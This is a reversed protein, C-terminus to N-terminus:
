LKLVIWDQLLGPNKKQLAGLMGGVLGQLQGGDRWLKAGAYAQVFGEPGSVVFVNKGPAAAGSACACDDQKFLGRKGANPAGDVIGVHATQSHFKCGEVAHTLPPSPNGLGRLGLQTLAAALDSDRVATGEQDVVVRIDLRDGFKDKLALLERTVPSPDMTELTLAEARISSSSGSVSGGASHNFFYNWSWWSAIGSTPADGCGQQIEDRSRVAWFITMSPASPLPLVAHAAQLASAIGTGGALFVVRDGRGGLRSRLDFEGHPGRLEVTDGVGGDAALPSLRSLYTSVEGGRVARVYLRLTDEDAGGPPPPLPTYERAVQIQPQKVEVCWLDFVHWLSAVGPLSSAPAKLTLIFSNPSVQERAIVAFPIFKRASGLITQEAPDTSTPTSPFLWQSDWAIGGIAFLLLLPLYRPSIFSSTQSTEALSNLTAAKPATSTSTFTSKLRRRSAALTKPLSRGRHLALDRNRYRSSYLHRSTHPSSAVTTPTASRSAAAAASVARLQRQSHTLARGATPRRMAVGAASALAPSGM